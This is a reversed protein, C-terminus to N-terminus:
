GLLRRVGSSLGPAIGLPAGGAPLTYTVVLQPRYAATAHDSSAVLWLVTVTTRLLLNLSGGVAAQAAARLAVDSFTLTANDGPDASLTHSALIISGDYDTTENEAGGAGWANTGDYNNWTAGSETWERLCRYLNVTVPNTYPTAWTLNLQAVSVVSTAPLSALSLRLLAVYRDSTGLGRQVRLVTSTGFNNNSQSGGRLYTDEGTAEDPQLTLVAGFPGAAMGCM